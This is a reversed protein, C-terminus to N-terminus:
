INKNLLVLEAAFIATNAVNIWTVDIEHWALSCRDADFGNSIHSRCAFFLMVFLVDQAQLKVAMHQGWGGAAAFRGHRVPDDAEPPTRFERTRGTWM